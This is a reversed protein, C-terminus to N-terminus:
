NGMWGLGSGTRGRAGAANSERIKTKLRLSEPLGISQLLGKKSPIHFAQAACRFADAADVHGHTDHFPEASYQGEVVKFAYRNLHSLGDACNREDFWVKPFFLRAMNLGDAIKNIKPVVQTSPFKSRVQQEISHKYGMKSHKADHPLYMTGYIYPKNQLQKIYFNIDPEGQGELFDLMRFQMSVYQGFWIATYDRQGLDWFCDVPVEPEYPVKTIRGEERAARLQHKFVAGELRQITHGEWVNLYADYDLRKTRELDQLLVSPFWPNDKYTMKVVIADASEMSVWPQGNSGRHQVPKLDPDKVFYKYTYDDDLEPNLTMWIEAQFDPKEMGLERWNLPTEKRITPTLIDWSSKSVKNAEEVWCYDIGEYSKIAAANNKIGEFSFTTGNKGKIRAVEVDYHASLGLAVIQDALVKHVSEAISKQLERCCLVRICRNAGILLLARAVGWSRGAGRGGWLVKYRKPQFLVALHDPFEASFSM